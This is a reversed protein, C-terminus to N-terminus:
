KWFQLTNSVRGWFTSPSTPAASGASGSKAVTSPDVTSPAQPLGPDPSMDPAHSPSVLPQSGPDGSPTGGPLVTSGTGSPPLVDYLTQGPSVLQYDQRALRNIEAKSNLQQEQEALLRNSHQLQSLEAAAASLQHHQTFLNSLPFGAALVAVAFVAAVAVPIRNRRTRASTPNKRAPTTSNTPRRKSGQARQAGSPKKDATTRKPGRLAKPRRLSTLRSSPRPGNAAKPGKGPTVAKPKTTKPKIAKKTTAKPKTAKAAKSPKPTTVKPRTTTAKVRTPKTATAKTSRAPSASRAPKTAKTAKTTKARSPRSVSPSEKATRFPKPATKASKSHAYVRRSV